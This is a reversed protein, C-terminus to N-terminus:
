MVTPAEMRRTLIPGGVPADTKGDSIDRRGHAVMRGPAVPRHRYSTLGRAPSPIANSAWASQEVWGIEGEVFANEVALRLCQCCAGFALDFKIAAGVCLQTGVIFHTPLKLRLGACITRM